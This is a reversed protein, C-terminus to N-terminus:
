RIQTAPDGFLHYVSILEPMLGTEAYAKQAATLADGLREHRGSTLEAMLARHYRHAPGDLSLGSPSFGAIAGRGEAKLLSETLSDFAPAVFYGNLCNLTLLLPQRSQAQLSAVDWSNWVNESAWVAAGGHGVYSLLGLGSDLAERIAPRAGSGLESLLLLRPNRQSLFSAAIDRVDSEFDGGLDPNDAVLAAAGSLGQGSDEWALLKAVLTQAEEVTAAPLRGIALDPLADEGNVAALLPDSVTWLYSTKTWLAPLPSPLATGTFNRPDYSADGLLLVYRPSPRTWSQFAYALFSRIAEASPQGRGFQEAIEEFAVTRAQLGQDRRRQLLPEASAVFAQPAILLYDAQNTTARLSSPGPAAVRPTLLSQASVALYRRGAEARFRLSGGSAEYGRLWRAGSASSTTVDLLAAPATLGALTVTGAENWTGEFVGGALSSTQPYSLTFRDLFVFSTAGTDAVNTLQLENARERLLSAPVGLTMRYPKKGAFRAEGALTGNVSVSVHHDVANGSESAGQLFVELEAAQAALASVGALSFSKVRTTGSALNEWLWPDAADLLGPQYFRNTEFRAFGFSAAAVAGGAPAASALPMVVGAGSRVLEFATESSFDTSAAETDAHFHLVGGPGFSDSAPELHFAQAEGQRELRLESALLGRRRGPFLQDFSVAYLGRGTTYLRALLEGSAPKDPTPKRGLHGRGSEATERGSFLLRVRVRKALLLQRRRPDFRLPSIEVVASKTEGQFVSPLLRVLDISTGQSATARVGRRGARVTGDWSVQMEAKGLAGPVLGPFTVQDMARVGGLQVRRGVAADVLARRFPLAAAQADSPFEFGPVFARVGGSAERLSYFGGTRLELTAGRSDNSVIELSAAEPDGHRACVLAATAGNAGTASAYASLVWDPCSAGAALKRGKTQRSAEGGNTAGSSGGAQPVASVPGHSTTRSAADVDELRYYYRTGNALGVDQFSYAQGTASSGLGPILSATVRTWPGDEALARYVHFGLNDLESATRWELAVSANGAAASFSMLRVETTGNYEDAGVDWAGAPRLTADIDTQFYNDLTNAVNLAFSGASLHLNETGVGTNVFAVNALSVNNQGAVFGGRPSNIIGTMDGTLNATSGISVDARGIQAEVPKTAPPGSALCARVYYLATADSVTNTTWGVPDDSWYVFGQYQLNFTGDSFPATELNAWAGNWYSWQLDSGGSSGTALHVALGRFAFQSGVYLCDTGVNTFNLTFNVTSDAVQTRIDTYVGNFFWARDFPPAIGIDGTNNSHVINNRLDIRQTTQRVTTKIGSPGTGGNNSYITNNFINLRAAPALDIGQPRIGYNTEYIINNYIDVVANGDLILVGSGTTHIVNNRVVVHNAGATLSGIEVGHANTSSGSFMRLELWEVTVYDDNVRVTASTGGNAFAAWTASGAGQGSHRNGPDVTLTITHAADTISGQFTVVPSGVPNSGDYYYIGIESRNDQVLSVSSVGPCAGGSICNEWVQVDNFKRAITYAYSNTPSTFPSTLRLRTESEVALITYDVANITIRDGRGRNNTRWLTGGVGDVIVSGNTANVTGTTYNGATGISRLNVTYTSLAVGAVTEGGVAYFGAPASQNRYESLIWNASRAVNSVRVEDIGGEFQGSWAVNEPLDGHGIYVNPEAASPPINGTKPQSAQLVGDVYISQTAGDYTTAVHRWGGGAPGVAMDTDLGLGSRGPMNSVVCPNAASGTCQFDDGQLWLSYGSDWGKHALIGYPTNTQPPTGHAANIVINHRVWAQLTIQNGSINLSGDNGVDVFDYTGDGNNFNQAFGIQGAIRAPTAAAVGRGGRGHNTFASSDRYEAIAASGTEGLHWVGVYGADFVGAPTETDRTILANGYYMYIVTGVNVSPVRVWAVLTGTAGDYREIDHALMCSAPGACTTADEGRFVIDKGGAAVRALLSADNPLSVLVPFNLHPGGVLAASVTISKRYGFTGQASAPVAFGVAALVLLAGLTQVGGRSTKTIGM